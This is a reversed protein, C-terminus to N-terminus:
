RGGAPPVVLSRRNDLTRPNDIGNRAALDRWAGPDGLVEGAIGSLTEGGILNRVTAPVAFLGLATEVTAAAYERFTTSLYARLPTGDSRFHTYRQGVKELVCAFDFGGWSFVLPPPAGLRADQDLLGTVRRTQVRVDSRDASSDFFLEIRLTRGTGRVYQVPPAPLGTIPFEAFNNGADLSYEEPNFQVPLVERTATNLLVAKELAM